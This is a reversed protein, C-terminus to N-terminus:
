LMTTALCPVNVRYGAELLCFISADLSTLVWAQVKVADNEDKETQSLLGGLRMSATAPVHVGDMEQHLLALTM